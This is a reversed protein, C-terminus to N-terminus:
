PERDEDRHQHTPEGPLERQWILNGDRRVERVRHFPVEHDMGYCDTAVFSFHNGSQVDIRELPVTVIQRAVRDYYGITFRGSAFAQDWRIRNLLDQIPLVVAVADILLIVCGHWISCGPLV